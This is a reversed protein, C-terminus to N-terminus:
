GIIDFAPSASPYKGKQWEIQPKAYRSWTVMIPEQFAYQTFLALGVVTLVGLVILRRIINGVWWM